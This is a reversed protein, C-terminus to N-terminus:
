KGTAEGDCCPDADGHGPLDITVVCGVGPLRRRHVTGGNAAITRRVISWDAGDHREALAVHPRLGHRPRQRM